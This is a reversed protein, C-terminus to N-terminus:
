RPLFIPTHKIKTVKKEASNNWLFGLILISVLTVGGQALLIQWPPTTFNSSFIFPITNWTGHLLSVIIYAVLVKFNFHFHKKSSQSFLFGSLIGSWTGHQLPGLIGRVIAVALTLNFSLTQLFALFIYGMNELIAFGMGVSTGLLIGQNRRHYRTQTFLLLVAGLKILEEIFGILFLSEINMNKIFIPEIIATTLIGIFGGLLFGTGIALLSIRTHDKQLLFTIYSVPFILTSLFTVTPFM